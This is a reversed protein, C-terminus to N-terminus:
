IKFKKEHELLWKKRWLEGGYGTLSGNKGIVRHCPVIITLQNQGNAHGIARVAKPSNITEAQQAYSWTHGYPIQSLARWAKQQFNTGTQQYPITFTKRTGEFYEELEQKCQQLLEPVNLTSSIIQAHTNCFLISTICQANGQIAISGLPSDLYLTHTLMEMNKTLIM